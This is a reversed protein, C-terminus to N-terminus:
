TELVVEEDDVILCLHGYVLSLGFHESLIHAPSRHQSRGQRFNVWETKPFAPKDEAQMHSYLQWRTERCDSFGLLFARSESDNQALCHFQLDRGWVIMELATFYITSTMPLSLARIIKEKDDM